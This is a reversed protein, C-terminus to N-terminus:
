GFNDCCITDSPDFQVQPVSSPLQLSAPETQSHAEIYSIFIASALDAHSGEVSDDLWDPTERQRSLACHWEGEDYALRRLKWQPLDFEILALAAEIAAGDEIYKRIQALEATPPAAHGREGIRAIIASALWSALTEATPASPAALELSQSRDFYSSM